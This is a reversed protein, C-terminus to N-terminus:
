SNLQHYWQRQVTFMNLTEIFLILLSNKFQLTFLTYDTMELQNICKRMKGRMKKKKWHIIIIIMDFQVICDFFEISPDLIKKIAIHYINLSDNMARWNSYTTM